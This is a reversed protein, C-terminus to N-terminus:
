YKFLILLKNTIISANNKTTYYKEFQKLFYNNFVRLISIDHFFNIKDVTIKNPLIPVNAAVVAAVLGITLLETTIASFKGFYFISSNGTTV